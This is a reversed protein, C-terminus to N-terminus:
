TDEYIRNIIQKTDVNTASQEARRERHILQETHAELDDKSCVKINCKDCKFLRQNNTIDTDNIEDSTSAEHNIHEGGIESSLDVIDVETTGINNVTEPVTDGENEVTVTNEEAATDINNETQPIIEGVSEETTNETTTRTVIGEQSANTNPTEFYQTLKTFLGEAMNALDSKLPINEMNTLIRELKTPENENEKGKSIQGKLTMLEQKLLANKKSLTMARQRLYEKSKKCEDSEGEQKDNKASTGVSDM